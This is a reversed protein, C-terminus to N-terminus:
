QVLAPLGGAVVAGATHPSPPVHQRPARSYAPGNDRMLLLLFFILFLPENYLFFFVKVSFSCKDAAQGQSLEWQKECVRNACACVCM